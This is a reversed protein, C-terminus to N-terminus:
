DHNPNKRVVHIAGIIHKNLMERMFPKGFLEYVLNRKDDSTVYRAPISNLSLAIIDVTCKECRCVTQYDPSNLLVKVITPVIEEMVNYFQKNNM